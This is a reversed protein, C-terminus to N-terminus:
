WSFLTLGCRSEPGPGGRASKGYPAEDSRGAVMRLGSPFALTRFPTTYGGIPLGVYQVTSVKGADREHTEVFGRAAMLDTM